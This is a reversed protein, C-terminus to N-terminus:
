AKTPLTLHTYSVPKSIQNEHLEPGEIRLNIQPKSDNDELVLTAGTVTLGGSATGDVRIDEPGEWFNDDTVSVVLTASASTQSAPITISPLPNQAQYDTGETAMGSLSLQVTTETSRQASLTATVAIDTSSDGETLSTTSPVSLTVSPTQARAKEIPLTCALIALVVAVALKPWIYRSVVM